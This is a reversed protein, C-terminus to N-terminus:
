HSLHFFYVPNIIGSTLNLRPISSTFFPRRCAFTDGLSVIIVHNQNSVAPQLASRPGRRFFSTVPSSMVDGSAVRSAGVRRSMVPCQVVCSSIVIFDCSVVGRSMLRSRPVVHSSTFATRPGFASPKWAFCWTTVLLTQGAMRFMGGLDLLNHKGMRVM